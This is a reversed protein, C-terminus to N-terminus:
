EKHYLSLKGKFILGSTLILSEDVCVEVYEPTFIVFRWPITVPSMGNAIFERGVFTVEVAGSELTTQRYDEIRFFKEAVRLQSDYYPFFQLTDGFIQCMAREQRWQGLNDVGPYRFEVAYQRGEIMQTVRAQEDVAVTTHRIAVCSWLLSGMIAFIIIKM